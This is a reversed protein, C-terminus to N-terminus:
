ITHQCLIAPLYSTCPSYTMGAFTAMGREAVEMARGGRSGSEAQDGNSDDLPRQRRWTVGGVCVSGSGEGL